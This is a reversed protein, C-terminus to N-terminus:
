SCIIFFGNDSLLVYFLWDSCQSITKITTWSNLVVLTGKLKYSPGFSFTVTISFSHEIASVPLYIFATLHGRTKFCLTCKSFRYLMDINTSVSAASCNLVSSFTTCNIYSHDIFILTFLISVNKRKMAEHLLFCIDENVVGECRFGKTWKSLRAKALGEQKCPFSFTFGLPLRVNKLDHARIFRCICDAIHDFLQFYFFVGTVVSHM